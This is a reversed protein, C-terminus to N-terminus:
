PPQCCTSPVGRGQFGRQEEVPRGVERWARRPGVREVVIEVVSGDSAVFGRAGDSIRAADHVEDVRCARRDVADGGRETDIRAVGVAAVALWAPPLARTTLSCSNTM